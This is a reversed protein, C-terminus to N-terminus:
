PSILKGLYPALATVAKAVDPIAKLTNMLGEGLMKLRSKNPQPKVAEEGLETIVEIQERKKDDPLHQSAMIADKLTELAKAFDTQGKATLNAVVDNFKGINQIGGVNIIDGAKFTDGMTIEGKEIIIQSSGKSSTLRKLEAQLNERREVLVPSVTGTYESIHKEVIQLEDEMIRIWYEAPFRHSGRGPCDGWFLSEGCNPCTEYLSGYNMEHIISQRDTFNSKPSLVIIFEKLQQSQRELRKHLFGRMARLVRKEDLGGWGAGLLPSTIKTISHNNAVEIIGEVCLEIALLFTDYYVRSRNAKDEYNRVDPKPANLGVLQWYPEPAWLAHKNVFEQNEMMLQMFTESSDRLEYKVTNTLLLTEGMLEILVTWGYPYGVTGIESHSRGLAIDIKAQFEQQGVAPLGKLYQGLVSKPIPARWDSDEISFFENIPLVKAADVTLLDAKIVTVKVDNIQKSVIMDAYPM